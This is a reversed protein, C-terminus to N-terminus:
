DRVSRCMLHFVFTVCLCFACAPFVTYLLIHILIYTISFFSLYIYFTFWPFLLHCLFSSLCFFTLSSFIGQIKAEIEKEAMQEQDLRILHPILAKLM